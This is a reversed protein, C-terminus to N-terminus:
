TLSCSCTSLCRKSPLWTLPSSRRPKGDISISFNSAGLGNIDAGTPDEVNVLATANPYTGDSIAGITAHLGAPEQARALPLGGIALALLTAVTWSKLRM